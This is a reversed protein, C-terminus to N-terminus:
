PLQQQNQDPPIYNKIGITFVNEDYNLKIRKDKDTIDEVSIVNGNKISHVYGAITNIIDTLNVLNDKLEKIKEIINM